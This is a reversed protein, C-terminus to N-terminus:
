FYNHGQGLYPHASSRGGGMGRPKAGLKMFTACHASDFSFDIKWNKSNDHFNM